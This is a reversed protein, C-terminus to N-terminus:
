LSVVIDGLYCFLDGDSDLHIRDVLSGIMVEEQNWSITEDVCFQSFQLLASFVSSDELPLVEGLIVYDLDLGSVQPVDEYLEQSSEVVLGNGDFYLYDGLFEVYGVLITEEQEAEPVSQASLVIIKKRGNYFFALFFVFVLAIRTPWRRGGRRKKM